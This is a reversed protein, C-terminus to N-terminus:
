AVTKGVKRRVHEGKYRVGKGKYPEAPYFSRIMAATDGVKEKDVGTVSIRVGDEEAVKVGDPVDYEVPSAFGLSLAVKQGKVVAKFGVGQIELEKKYGSSVGIVMNNILTRLLGHFSKSVRADNSRSVMVVGDKVEVGIVDPIEKTLEGLKGKVSVKSGSVSVTVGSPVDIPKQGIRSM